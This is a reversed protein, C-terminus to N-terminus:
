GRRGDPSWVVLLHADGASMVVADTQVGLENADSSRGAMRDFPAPLLTVRRVPLGRPVLRALGHEVSALARALPATLAQALDSRAVWPVGSGSELSPGFSVARAAGLLDLLTPLGDRWGAAIEGRVRQVLPEPAPDLLRKAASLDVAADIDRPGSAIPAALGSEGAAITRGLSRVHAEIATLRRRESTLQERLWTSARGVIEPGLAEHEALAIAARAADYDAQATALSARAVKARLASWGRALGALGVFAATGVLALLAHGSGAISGALSGFAGGALAPGLALGALAGSPAAWGFVLLMAGPLAQPVARVRVEAARVAELTPMEGFTRPAAVEVEHRLRLVLREIAAQLPILAGLGHTALAQDVAAFVERALGEAAALARERLEDGSEGRQIEAIVEAVVVERPLEWDDSAWERGEELSAALLVAAKAALGRALAEDLARASLHATGALVQTVGATTWLADTRMVERGAATGALDLCAALFSGLRQVREVADIAQGFASAPVLWLPKMVDGIVELGMGLTAGALDEEALELGVVFRVGCEVSEDRPAEVLVVGPRRAVREVIARLAGALPHSRAPPVLVVEIPGVHRM